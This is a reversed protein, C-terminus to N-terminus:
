ILQELLKSIDDNSVTDLDSKDFLSLLYVTTETINVYTIM